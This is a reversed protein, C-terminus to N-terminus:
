NKGQIYVEKLDYDSGFTHTVFNKVYPKTLVARGRFFLPGVPMEQMLEKEAQSLLNMRKAPDVEAHAQTMLTDFKDSKWKSSKFSSGSWYNDLFTAPDNYDAGFRSLAIDYDKQGMRQLRLKFPVPDIEVDLGLNQKLQAQVFEAGKKNADSNDVLIKLKPFENLGVEKLGEQLTQKAKALNEKRNLLDGTSKRFDGGKDDSIGTPVLGTAGVSGNNYVVQAFMDGDVAWTLARRVKASQLAKREYNFSLYDTTLQPETAFDPNTKYTDVQAGALPLSRDLQNGEYLNVASQGDRIVQLHVKTLKVKDKDWYSDNKVLEVSQEHQWDKMVFPGNYLLKDADAAFKDGQAEVFKKNLPFFLPFSLLDAFFPVPQDLTVVLTKADQAKIGVDEAKGEGKNYKDAGKIWSLLFAYEAKSNPDLTRKWSYEFDQATVPEGNSWKTDRLHFTYTKGDQSVDWKESVAGAAKQDKGLRTLGENTQALTTFAIGDVAKSLDMTPIEDSLPLTLEQVADPKAATTTIAEQDSSCGALATGALLTTALAVPITRRTNM